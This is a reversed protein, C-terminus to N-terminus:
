VPTTYYYNAVKFASNASVTSWQKQLIVCKDPKKKANQRDAKHHHLQESLTIDNHTYVSSQPHHYYQSVTM